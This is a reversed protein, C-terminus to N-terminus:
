EVAVARRDDDVTAVVLELNGGVRDVDRAELPQQVLGPRPLREREPAALGEGVDGVLREGGGLDAPEVFLAHVRVLQRDLRVEVRPPMGVDDALELPEDRFV